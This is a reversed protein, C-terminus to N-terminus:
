ASMWWVYGGYINFVMAFIMITGTVNGIKTKKVILLYYIAPILDILYRTGFQWGGFTRHMLLLFFHLFLSLCGVIQVIDWKKNKTMWIMHGLLLIFIPNALYFAFVFKKPSVLIGNNFEPLRLINVFNEKVYSFSFQSGDRQFEPLYTHGFELSNDFRVANFVGYAAAIAIPVICCVALQKLTDFISKEKEKLRMFALLILLPVYVAQFPRCGVALAISVLGLAINKKSGKELFYFAAVTFVFSLSQAQFWVGGNLSIGFLNCGLVLFLAWIMGKVPSEGHKKVMLYGLTFSALLYILMLFNSPVNEGFLFTLPYVLLTPVPPFSLWYKGQYIALELHPYDSLMNLQGERWALAQLTYSDWESPAFIPTSLLFQCALWIFVIAIMGLYLGQFDQKTFHKDKM